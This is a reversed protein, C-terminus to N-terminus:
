RSEIQAMCCTRFIAETAVAFLFALTQILRHTVHHTARTPTQHPPRTLPTLLRTLPAPVTGVARVGAATLVVGDAVRGGAAAVARGAPVALVAFETPETLSGNRNNSKIYYCRTTM